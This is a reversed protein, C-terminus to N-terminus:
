SDCNLAALIGRLYVSCVYHTSMSSCTLVEFREAVLPSTFQSHNQMFDRLDLLRSLAFSIDDSSFASVLQCCMYYSLM